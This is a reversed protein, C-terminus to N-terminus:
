EYIKKPNDKNFKQSHGCLNCTRKFYTGIDESNEAEDVNWTTATVNNESGCKPCFIIRKGEENVIIKFVNEKIWVDRKEQEEKAIRRKEKEKVKSEHKELKKRTKESRKREKTMPIDDLKGHRIEFVKDEVVQKSEILKIESKNKLVSLRDFLSM